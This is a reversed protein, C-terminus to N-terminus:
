REFFPFHFGINRANGARDSFLVSNFSLAAKHSATASEKSDLYVTTSDPAGEIVFGWNLAPNKLWDLVSGTVDITVFGPASPTAVVGVLAGTVPKQNFTLTSEDWAGSAESVRLSGGSAIRGVWLVLNVRGTGAAANTGQPLSSLDFQIYTKSYASVCLSASGGFNVDPFGSHYHADATAPLTEQPLRSAPLLATCFAISTLALRICPQALM